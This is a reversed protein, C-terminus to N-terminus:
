GRGCQRLAPLAITEDVGAVLPGHVDVARITILLGRDVEAAVLAFAVADEGGAVARARGDDADSAAEGRHLADVAAPGQGVVM